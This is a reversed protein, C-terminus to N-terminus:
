LCNRRGAPSSTRVFLIGKKIKIAETHQAIKGGVVSEWDSLARNEKIASELGLGKITESLVQKLDVVM